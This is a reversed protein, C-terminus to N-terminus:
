VLAVRELSLGRKRLGLLLLGVGVVLLDILRRADSGPQRHAQGLVGGNADLAALGQCGVAREGSHLFGDAPPEDELGVVNDARHMRITRVLSVPVSCYSM